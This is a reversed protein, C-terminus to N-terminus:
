ETPMTGNFEEPTGGVLTQGLQVVLREQVEASQIARTLEAHLRAVIPAPTGAPLMLGSFAAAELAPFGLERVTPVDPLTSLRTPHTVALARLQGARLPQLSTSAPDVIMPVQGSIADQLAPGSGKYPVHVFRTGYEANALQGTLHMLTGIGPSAYPIESGRAAQMLEGFGRWPQKPHVSVVFGQASLAVLPALDRLADYPLKPYLGPNTAIPASVLLLTYGDPKARVVAETGTVTGGGPRNEILVSQGLAEGLAKGVTRAMIDSIGGPAFPVVLRIPRTPWAEQARGAPAAAAIAAASLGRLALRRSADAPGGPIPSGVTRSPARTRGIRGGFGPPSRTDDTM